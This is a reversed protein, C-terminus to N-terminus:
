VKGNNIQAKLKENQKILDDVYAAVDLLLEVINVPNLDIERKARVPTISKPDDPLEWLLHKGRRRTKVVNRGKVNPRKNFTGDYKKVYEYVRTYRHYGRKDKYGLKSVGKLVDRKEFFSLCAPVLNVQECINEPVDLATFRYGIPQTELWEHFRQNNSKEVFNYRM